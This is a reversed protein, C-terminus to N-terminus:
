NQAPEASSAASLEVIFLRNRLRRDLAPHGNEEPRGVDHHVHGHGADRDIRDIGWELYQSALGSESLAKSATPVLTSGHFLSNSVNVSVTIPALGAAQWRRSQLCAERLMWEDMPRILGTDIAAPLFHAPSLIGRRLHRWRILAEAGTIRRSRVDVKAQYYILFERREVAKRLDNEVDLRESAAANLGTSYFQCNSRGQEKAHYMATDANKLLVEATEGDSPYISIGVSASIFIEHTDILFPRAFSELIRRSV